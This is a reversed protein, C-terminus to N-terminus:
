SNVENHNAVPFIRLSQQILFISHWPRAVGGLDEETM